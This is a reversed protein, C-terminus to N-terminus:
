SFTLKYTIELTDGSNLAKDSTVYRSLMTGSSAANFVGIERVTETWSFTFTHVLQLTDNTVNETVRSVSSANARQWWNGTIESSLATQWAAAATNNSGLAIYTFPNVSGTNWALWALGALWANVVLNKGITESLLEGQSNRHTLTYVWTVKITQNM